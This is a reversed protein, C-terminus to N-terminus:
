SRLIKGTQFDQIKSPKRAEGIRGKIIKSKKYFLRSVERYKTLSKKGSLNASTSIIAM